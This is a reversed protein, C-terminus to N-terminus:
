SRAGVLTGGNPPQEPQEVRESKGGEGESGVAGRRAKAGRTGVVRGGVRVGECSCEDEAALVERREGATSM